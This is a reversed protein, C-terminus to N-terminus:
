GVEVLVTSSYSLGYVKYEDPYDGSISEQAEDLSYYIDPYTLADIEIKQGVTYGAAIVWHEVDEGEVLYSYSGTHNSNFGRTYGKYIQCGIEQLALELDGQQYGEIEITLKM